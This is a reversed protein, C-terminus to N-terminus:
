IGTRRKLAEIFKIKVFDKKNGTLYPELWHDTRGNKFNLKKETLVKETDKRAWASGNEADVMLKGYYLYRAYLQAHDLWVHYGDDMEASDVYISNMLGGQDLPVTNNIKTHVAEMAEVASEKVANEIDHIKQQNLKITIKM